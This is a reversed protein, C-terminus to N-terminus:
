GRRFHVKISLDPVGAGPDEEDGDEVGVAEVGGGWYRSVPLAWRRTPAPQGAAAPSRVAGSTAEAAAAVGRRHAAPRRGTNM